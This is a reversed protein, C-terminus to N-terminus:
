LYGHSTVQNPHFSICVELLRFSLFLRHGFNSGYSNPGKLEFLKACGKAHNIWGNINQDPCEVVEYMILAMCSALTEDRYMLKPDWLAKQLEWLGKVYFKLSEHLLVENNHLRGLKATCVALISSELATTFDPLAPLM